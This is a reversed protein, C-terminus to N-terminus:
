SINKVTVNNTAYNAILKNYAITKYNLFDFVIGALSVYVNFFLDMLTDM